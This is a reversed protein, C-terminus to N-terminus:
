RAPRVLDIDRSVSTSDDPSPDIAEYAWATVRASGVKFRQNRGGVIHAEWSQFVAGCDTSASFEASITRDDHVQTVVGRIEVGVDAPDSCYLMGDLDIAGQPSVVAPSSAIPVLVRRTLEIEASAWPGGDGTTATVVCGSGVCDVVGGSPLTIARHITVEGAFAGAADATTTVPPRIDCWEASAPRNAACLTVAVGAGAPFGAGTVTVVDGDELGTAHSVSVTPAPASPDAFALPVEVTSFLGNYAATLTCAGAAAACDVPGPGAFPQLEREVAQYASFSGSADPTLSTRVECNLPLDTATTSGPRCQLIMVSQGPPFGTSEVLVSQGDVLDHDPTVTLTPALTQAGSPVPAALAAVAAAVLATALVHRHRM